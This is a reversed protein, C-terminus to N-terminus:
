LCSEGKFKYKYLMEALEDYKDIAAKFDQTYYILISGFDDSFADSYYLHICYYGNILELEFRDIYELKVGNIM